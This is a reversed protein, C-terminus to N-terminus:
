KIKLYADTKLQDESSLGEIYQEKSKLLHDIRQLM